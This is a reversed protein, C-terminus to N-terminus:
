NPIVKKILLTKVIADKENYCSFNKYYDIKLTLLNWVQEVHFDKVIFESLKQSNEFTTINTPTINRNAVYNGNNSVELTKGNIMDTLIMNAWSKTINTYNESIWGTLILLSNDDMTKINNDSNVLYPFFDQFQSPGGNYLNLKLYYPQSSLTWSFSPIKVAYTFSDLFMQPNDFTYTLKNNPFKVVTDADSWIPVFVWGTSYGIDFSWTNYNGNMIFDDPIVELTVTKAMITSSNIKFELDIGTGSTNSKSSLELLEQKWSNLIYLKGWNYLIGSPSLIGHSEDLLNYALGWSIYIVKNNGSDSIFINNSLDATVWAPNNLYIGTGATGDTFDDNWFINKGAIATTGSYVTNNSISGSFGVVWTLTVPNFNQIFLRKTRITDDNECYGTFSTELINYYSSKGSLHDSKLIISNSTHKIIDFDGSLIDNFDTSLNTIESSQDLIQKQITINKMGSSVFIWVSIMLIMSISVWVILEILSFGSHYKKM